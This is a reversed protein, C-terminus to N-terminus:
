FMLSVLSICLLPRHCNNRTSIHALIVAADWVLIRGRSWLTALFQLPDTRGYLRSRRRQWRPHTRCSRIRSRSTSHWYVRSRASSRFRALIRRSLSRRSRTFGVAVTPRRRPLRSTRTARRTSCMQFAHTLLHKWRSHFSPLCQCEDVSIHSPDDFTLYLYKLVEAFWFSEMDDIFGGGDASNVDNIPAYAVTPTKLHAGLSQYAAVARQYYKVDGTYRWAYFNSELVEPRM